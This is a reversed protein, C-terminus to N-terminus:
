MGREAHQLFYECDSLSETIKGLTRLAVARNYYIDFNSKDHEIGANFARLAEKPKDM